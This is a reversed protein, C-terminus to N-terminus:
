LKGNIKSNEPLVDITPSTVRYELEETIKPLISTPINKRTPLAIILVANKTNKNILAKRLM